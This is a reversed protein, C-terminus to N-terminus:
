HNVHAKKLTIIGYVFVYINNAYTVSFTICMLSADNILPKFHNFVLCIM